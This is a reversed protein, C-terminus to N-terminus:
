EIPAPPLERWHTPNCSIPNGENDTAFTFLGRKRDRFAVFQEKTDDCYVLVDIPGVPLNESCKVWESM